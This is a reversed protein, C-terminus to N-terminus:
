TKKQPKRPIMENGNCLWLEPESLNLDSGTRTQRRLEVRMNDIRFATAVRVIKFCQQELDWDSCHGSHRERRLM